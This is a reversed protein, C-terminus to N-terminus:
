SKKLINATAAELAEIFPRLKTENDKRYISCLVWIQPIIQM